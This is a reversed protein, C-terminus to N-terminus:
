RGHQRDASLSSDCSLEGLMRGNFQVYGKRRNVNVEYVLGIPVAQLQTNPLLM